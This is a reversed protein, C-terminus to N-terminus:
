KISNKIRTINKLFERTDLFYNPYAKKIQRLNGASMLVVSISPDNLTSQERTKYYDLAIQDETFANIYVKGENARLEIVSFKENKAFTRQIHNASVAIGEIKKLIGIKKDLANFEDVIQKKTLDKFEDPVNCKEDIAFLASALKFFKKIQEDGQGTKFSCKEVVGMTEVATAWCHQLKTRLQIEVPLGNLEPHLSNNFRFVQHISRYGDEKPTEIYDHPPIIPEHKHRGKQITELMSYVDSVSGLVVRLGAIDQMRGLEMKRFRQLKLVISPTRKLRQAILTGKYGKRKVTNRLLVNFKILPYTFAYRWRSLTSFSDELSARDCTEPNNFLCDRLIDGAKSVSHKSPIEYKTMPM